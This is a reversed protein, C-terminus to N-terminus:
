QIGIKEQAIAVHEQTDPDIIDYTKSSRIFKTHQCIFYTKKDLM